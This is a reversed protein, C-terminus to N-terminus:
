PSWIALIGSAMSSDQRWRLLPTGYRLGMLEVVEGHLMTPVLIARSVHKSLALSRRWANHPERLQELQLNLASAGTRKHGGM